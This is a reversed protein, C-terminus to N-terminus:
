ITQLRLERSVQTQNVFPLEEIYKIKSAVTHLFIIDMMEDVYSIEGYNRLAMHNALDRVEVMLEIKNEIM